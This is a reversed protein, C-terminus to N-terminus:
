KESGIRCGDSTGDEGAANRERKATNRVEPTPQALDLSEISCGGRRARSPTQSSPSIRAGCPAKFLLNPIFVLNTTDSAHKVKSPVDLPDAWVLLVTPGLYLM